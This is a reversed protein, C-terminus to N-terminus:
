GSPWSPIFAFSCTPTNHSSRADAIPVRNCTSEPSRVRPEKPVRGGGRMAARVDRCRPRAQRDEDHSLQDKRRLRAVRGGSSSPESRREIGGHTIRAVEDESVPGIPEIEQQPRSESQLHVPKGVVGGGLGLTDVAPTAVPEAQGAKVHDLGIPQLDGPVRISQLGCHVLGQRGFRGSWGAVSPRSVVHSVDPPLSRASM